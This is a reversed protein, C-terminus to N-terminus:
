GPPEGYRSALREYWRDVVRTVLLYVCLGGGLLVTFLIVPHHRFLAAVVVLPIAAILTLSYYTITRGVSNPQGIVSRMVFRATSEDM